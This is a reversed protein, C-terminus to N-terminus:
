PADVAPQLSCIFEALNQALQEQPELGVQELMVAGNRNDVTLIFDDEDTLGFFLTEPQNLRRKMLIHGVINQQLRDFDDQNWPQLLQLKGKSTQANLNNSWYTSYFSVIDQHIKMDLAKELDNFNAKLDRKIPQWKTSTDSNDTNVYCESPWDSAYEIALMEPNIKATQLYKEIFKDLAAVVETSM